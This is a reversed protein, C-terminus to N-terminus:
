APAIKIANIVWNVDSGGADHFRIEMVGDTVTVHNPRFWYGYGFIIYRNAITSMGEFGIENEVYFNMLDHAYLRDGVDFTVDYDGNPLDVKFTHDTASFVFDRQLYDVPSGRDRADLNVVNDWGYGRIPSYVMTNTVQTWGSEVPSDATGFDFQWSTPVENEGVPERLTTIGNGGSVGIWNFYVPNENRLIDICNQLDELHYFLKAYNTATEEEDPPLISGNPEFKLIAFYKGGNLLGIQPSFPKAYYTVVYDEVRTQTLATVTTPTLVGLTTLGVVTAFILMILVLTTLVIHKKM